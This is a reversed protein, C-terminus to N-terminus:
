RCYPPVAPCLDPPHQSRQGPVPDPDAPDAGRIGGASRPEIQRARGTPVPFFLQYDRVGLSTGLEIVDEVDSMASRMVSMNIQVGIREEHCYSIAQVAREWVGDLGRFSDHVSPDHQILASPWLGSGRNM